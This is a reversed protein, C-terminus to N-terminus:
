GRQWPQWQQPSVGLKNGVWGGIAGGIPGGLASGALGAATGLLSGFLGGPANQQGFAVQGMNQGMNMANQASQGAAQAGTGYMGQATQVGGLYKQMLDNLYQQRDASAIESTKGQIGGMAASSGMLGMSSAADMGQKQAQQMMQQAYPSTEYSSAWQNQLAVPNLLNDMAGTLRQGAQQGQQAYPTLQGQAQGYYQQMQDGAANYGQQPHMFSSLWSM